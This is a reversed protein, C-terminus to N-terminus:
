PERYSERLAPSLAGRLDQRLILGSLPLGANVARFPPQEAYPCRRNGTIEARSHEQQYQRCPAAALDKASDDAEGRRQYVRGPWGLVRTAPCGSREKGREARKVSGAALDVSM